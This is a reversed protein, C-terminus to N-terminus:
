FELSTVRLTVDTYPDAAYLMIYWTGEEPAGIICQDDNGYTVADCDFDSM